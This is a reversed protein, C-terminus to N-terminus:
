FFYFRMIKSVHQEGERRGKSPNVPLCKALQERSPSTGVFTISDEEYQNKSNQRSSQIEKTRIYTDCTRLWIYVCGSSLYTTLLMLFSTHERDEGSFM